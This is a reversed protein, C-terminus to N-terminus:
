LLKKLEKRPEKNHQLGIQLLVISTKALDELPPLLTKKTDMVPYICRLEM